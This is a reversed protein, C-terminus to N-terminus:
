EIIAFIEEEKIVLLDEGEFKVSITAHPNYIVHDGVKVILPIPSSDKIPKGAGVAMVTAEFVPEKLSGALVIGGVTKEAAEKRKLLVRDHLVTVDM